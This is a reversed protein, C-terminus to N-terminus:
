ASEELQRARRDMWPRLEDVTRRNRLYTWTSSLQAHRLARQIVDPPAGAHLLADASTHRLAHLSKGDHATRKIRAARMWQSMMNSLSTPTLAHGTTRSYILPGPWRGREALYPQLARCTADTLPLLDESRSKATVVRLLRSELDLDSLQLSAIESRRLGEHLALSVIVRARHDPLVAALRDLDDSTLTRPQRLAARPPTIGVTPDTRVIRHEVAYRWLSRIVSVRM